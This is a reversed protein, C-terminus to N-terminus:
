RLVEIDGDLTNIRILYNQQDPFYFSNLVRSHNIWFLWGNNYGANEVIVTDNNMPTFLDRYLMWTDTEVVNNNEPTTKEMCGSFLLLSFLIGIIIIKINM